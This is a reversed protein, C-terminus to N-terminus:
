PDTSQSRILVKAVPRYNAEPRYKGRILSIRSSLCHALTTSPNMLGSVPGYGEILLFIMFGVMIGMHMMDIQYLESNLTVMALTVYILMFFSVMFESIVDRWFTLTKVEAVSIWEKLNM